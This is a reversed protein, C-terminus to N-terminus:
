IRNGRPNLSIVCAGDQWAYGEIIEDNPDRAVYTLNEGAFKFLVEVPILLGISSSEIVKGKPEWM